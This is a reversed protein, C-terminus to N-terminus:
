KRRIALLKNLRLPLSEFGPFLKVGNVPKAFGRKRGSLWRELVNDLLSNRLGLQYSGESGDRKAASAPLM